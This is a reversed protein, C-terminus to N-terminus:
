KETDSPPLLPSIVSENLGILISEKAVAGSIWDRLAAVQQELGLSETQKLLLNAGKALTVHYTALFEASRRQEDALAQPACFTPHNEYQVRCLISCFRSDPQSVQHVRGCYECITM